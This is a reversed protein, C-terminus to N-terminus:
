PLNVATKILDILDALAAPPESLKDAPVATLARLHSTPKSRNTFLYRYWHLYKQREDKAWYGSEPHSDGLVAASADSALNPGKAGEDLSTTYYSFYKGLLSM